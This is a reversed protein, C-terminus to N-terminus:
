LRNVFFNEADFFFDPLFEANRIANDINGSAIKTNNTDKNGSPGVPYPVFVMDFDLTSEALGDWNYDDYNAMIWVATTTFAVKAKESHSDIITRSYQMNELTNVSRDESLIRDEPVDHELLYRKMAEAESICEDAGQGGSLIAAADPHSYLYDYAASMREVLSLSPRDGHVAAGLVIIYEGDFDESGLSNKVIPVEVICFYLLGVALLACIIRKATRGCVRMLLIVAAIFCLALGIFDHGTFALILILGIVLLSLSWFLTKKM